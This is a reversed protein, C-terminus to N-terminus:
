NGHGVELLKVNEYINGIIEFSEEHWDGLALPIYDDDLEFCMMGDHNLIEKSYLEQESECDGDFYFWHLNVVDGEFIEKGNRDFLGTSQMVEVDEFSRKIALNPCYDEECCDDAYFMVEEFEYDIYQVRRILKLHKDYARFKPIM